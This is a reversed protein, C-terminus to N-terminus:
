SFDRTLSQFGLASRRRIGITHNNPLNRARGPLSRDILSNRQNTPGGFFFSDQHSTSALVLSSESKTVMGIGGFPNALAKRCLLSPFRCGHLRDRALNNPHVVFSYRIIPILDPLMSPTVVRMIKLLFIRKRM